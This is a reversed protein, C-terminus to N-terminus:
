KKKAYKILDITDNLEFAEIRSKCNSCQGCAIKNKNHCSWTLEFPVELELGWKVACAKNAYSLPAIIQIPPKLKTGIEVLRQMANIFKLSNDPTILDGGSSGICVAGAKLHEAYAIAQSELITNRNPVYENLKTTQKGKETMSVGSINKFFPIEVIKLIVKYHRALAKACWLEKEHTKQGYDFFIFYIAFGAKAMIAAAVASDLGGSVTCVVSKRKIKRLKEQFNM